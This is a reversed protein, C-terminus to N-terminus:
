EQPTSDMVLIFKSEPKQLYNKIAKNIQFYFSRAEEETTVHINIQNYIVNMNVDSLPNTHLYVYM